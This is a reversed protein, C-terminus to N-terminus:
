TWVMTDFFPGRTCTFVTGRHQAVYPSRKKVGRVTRPWFQNFTIKPDEFPVLCPPSVCKLLKKCFHKINPPGNEAM